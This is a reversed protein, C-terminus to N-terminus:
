KMWKYFGRIRKQWKDLKDITVNRKEMIHIFRICDELVVGIHTVYPPYISFTVICFPEPKDLKIFKDKNKEVANHITLLETYDEPFNPLEKGLREYILHVLGYCDLGKITRGHKEYPIGILDQIM